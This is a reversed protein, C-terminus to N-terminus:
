GQVPLCLRAMLERYRPQTALESFFPDGAAVVARDALKEDDRHEDRSGQHGDRRRSSLCRKACRYPCPFQRPHVESYRRKFEQEAVQPYGVDDLWSKDNLGRTDVVCTDGDWSGIAYGFWAHNMDAPHPRGDTLIQRFRTAFEYLILTLTPNQVIKFPRGVLMM